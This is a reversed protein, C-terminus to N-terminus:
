KHLKQTGIKASLIERLIKLLENAMYPKCLFHTIGLSGSQSVDRTASLGSAGIIPLTPKLKRLVRILAPGDMAPMMMDTLVVAIEPGQRAFISLAEVGDSALIVRYGFAQLTQQTIHRVSAEDDVVLIIEGNGRPMEVAIEKATESSAETQAPFYVKFKTGKGMESYVRMFGGHSKVIALSTSLGLGTGKGIEKTTFFPDFIKEIVGPPMGSGTDEVQLLLYPGSQAESVLGAYHEDVLINEASLTLTGGDPMADRANVCLNLLVQHVQTPDGMITWPDRGIITRVQIHKLFTDTAIKEVDKIVHRAQVEMHRGEVGRAFSLVQRVMDAGRQASSSLTALLAQSDPDTFKMSLLDISMMIPALSNNLDHAIGGALTGISEMRQARLFQNELKKRETLDLVFVVGEDPNDEYAATGILIPVRSGDKRIYEKEYPGCVGTKDLTELIVVERDAYEPPTMAMWNIRGAELDERTYGVLNLFSDNADKIGGNRHYFFVSQANSDVLRRFRSESRKRETIDLVFAVGADPNDEFAASGIIVPVLSGDKRIYEKEYPPCIKKADIQELSKQDLSAYKSPTLTMWNIREAELDERTYGVMRLFAENAGTIGGKRNWFLVGQVNSDVLLRFRAESKKRETIDRTAGVVFDVAGDSNLAPSFIYEYYGSSGTPSFYPTEDTIEQKTEFVGQLQRHLKEALEKPYGLDFFNKGMVADLTLGWLNLLPKNAFLIRGERDYIQAFDSTSALATSLLRERRETRLSLEELEQATHERETIDHSTGVIKSPQGTREDFLVHAQEHIIREEGDPRILRHVISYPEHSSIAVVVAQQLKTHEELPVLSYFLERTVKVAGPEYGAIRFMEDSWELPYAGLVDPPNLNLEWSGLHAIRQGIAMRTESSRLAQESNIRETINVHMVVAGALHDSNVPTVALRFWCKETPSHCPYELSFEKEEGLLVQRIGKAAAQAEESCDGIVRECIELYNQGVGFGPSQLVNTTAFQRWSENVSVIAGQTDLLAIQAPLANLIAAQRTSESFRLEEQARRLFFTQGQRDVVSDVQGATLEELRQETRNLTEVLDFIEEGEDKPISPLATKM